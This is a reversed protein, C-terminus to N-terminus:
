TLVEADEANSSLQAVTATAAAAATVFREGTQSTVFYSIFIMNCYQLLVTKKVRM